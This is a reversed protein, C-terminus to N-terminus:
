VFTFALSRSSPSADQRHARWQGVFAFGSGIAFNPVIDFGAFWSVAIIVRRVTRILVADTIASPASPDM